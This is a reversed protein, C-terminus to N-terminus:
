PFCSILLPTPATTYLFCRLISLRHFGPHTTNQEYSVVIAITHTIISFHLHHQFDSPFYPSSLALPAQWFPVFDSCRCCLFRKIICAGPVQYKSLQLFVQSHGMSTFYHLDQGKNSSIRLTHFIFTGERVRMRVTPPLSPRRLCAKFLAEFVKRLLTKGKFINPAKRTM